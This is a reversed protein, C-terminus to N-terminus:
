PYLSSLGSSGWLAAGILTAIITLGPSLRVTRNMVRPVLLYDEFLGYFVYFGGTAVAVPLGEYPAVLSVIIGALTSGVVPILDFIAVFLGLLFPYPM